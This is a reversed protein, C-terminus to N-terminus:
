IGQLFREKIITWPSVNNQRSERVIEVAVAVRSDIKSELRFPDYGGEELEDTVALLGGGNEFVGSRSIHLIKRKFLEGDLEESRCQDNAPGIIAECRLENITKKNPITIGSDAPCYIHCEIKHINDPHEKAVGYINRMAISKQEDIDSVFIVMNEKRVLAVIEKGVKGVGKVVLKKGKIVPSRGIFGERIFSKYIKVIMKATWPSPDDVGGYQGEGYNKPKGLVYPSTDLTTKLDYLDTHVDAGTYIKIDNNNYYNLVDGLYKFLESRKRGKLYSLPAWIGFKCGAYPLNHVRSKLEMDFSKASIKNIADEVTAWKEQPFPSDTQTGGVHIIDEDPRVIGAIIYIENDCQFIDIIHHWRSKKIHRREKLKIM